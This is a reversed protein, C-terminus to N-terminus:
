VAGIRALRIKGTQETSFHQSLVGLLQRSAHTGKEQIGRSEGEHSPKRCRVAKSVHLDGVAGGAGSLAAESGRFREARGRAM